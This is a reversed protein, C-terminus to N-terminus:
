QMGAICTGLCEANSIRPVYKQLMDEMAQKQTAITDEYSGRLEGLEAEKESAAAELKLRGPGCVVRPRLMHAKGSLCPSRVRKGSQM